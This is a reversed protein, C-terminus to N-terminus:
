DPNNRSKSKHCGKLRFGVREVAVAEGNREDKWPKEGYCRICWTEKMRMNKGLLLDTLWWVAELFEGVGGCCWSWRDGGLEM